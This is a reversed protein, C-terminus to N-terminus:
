IWLAGNHSRYCGGWHWAKKTNCGSENIIRKLAEQDQLQNLAFWGGDSFPEQQVLRLLDHEELLLIASEFDWCGRKSQAIIDMLATQEVMDGLTKGREAALERLRKAAYKRLPDNKVIRILEEEDTLRAIAAIRIM